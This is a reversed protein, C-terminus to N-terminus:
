GVMRVVNVPREAAGVIESLLNAWADLARRKDALYENRDYVATVSAAGGTDSIQNLVRSVIFRTIGVREGTMATAGTRRLDHAVADEIGVAATLRLMARSLAHRTIPHDAGRPSPFAFGAWDGVAAGTALAFAQDLAEVARGSLPVVHSRGNKTRDAPITWLRRERDLERAHLGVIEGGRQLTVMALRLALATGPALHLGKIPAETTCWIARLEDDSLVRERSRGRPVDTLQAPNRDIVERRIGFNYAQRVLNRCLRATAPSSVAVEDVFRQVESRTLESVPCDGFRPRILRTFLMREDSLTRARKPRANPRHRGNTAAELYDDILDAVTSIRRAKEAARADRADKAPDGGSAVLGLITAAHRKADALGVDPYAGM